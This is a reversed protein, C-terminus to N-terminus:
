RAAAIRGASPALPPSRVVLVGVAADVEYDGLRGVTLTDVVVKAFRCPPPPSMVYDLVMM